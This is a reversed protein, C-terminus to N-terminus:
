TLPEEFRRADEESFEGEIRQEHDKVSNGCNPCCPDDERGLGAPLRVGCWACFSIIYKM